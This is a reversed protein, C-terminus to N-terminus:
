RGGEDRTRDFHYDVALWYQEDLWCAKCERLHERYCDLCVQDRCVPLTTTNDDYVWEKCLSCKM